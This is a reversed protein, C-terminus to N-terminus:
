MMKGRVFIQRHILVLVINNMQKIDGKRLNGQMIKRSHQVIEDREEDLLM